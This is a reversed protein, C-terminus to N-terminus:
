RYHEPYVAEAIQKLAIVINHSPRNSSDTDISYVNGDAVAKIGEWGIRSLIEGVPDDLYNVSTLIVDPNADPVIEDSVAIWENQDAFINIAGAIEVMENLFVGSGFSYMWPAASIEFYVRKKNVINRGIERVFNIEREMAAIIEEGRADLGVLEALFRIDEIIGQISNSSPIYAVCVGANVVQEMPDTGGAKSMGTMIILDPEIDMMQEGDPSMMSFLPIGSNLGAIGYSYEDAAIIKDGAGLAILVETNSPGMSIIKSISAPIMIENGERDFGPTGAPEKAGACSASILIFAALFFAAIFIKASISKM